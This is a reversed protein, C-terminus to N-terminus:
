AENIQGGFNMPIAQGMGIHEKIVGHVSEYKGINEALAKMLKKANEPTLIIRSKVKGKPVGPMLQIFDVVFETPSHTIVSLNSYVGSSVDETLEINIQNIKEEQSM